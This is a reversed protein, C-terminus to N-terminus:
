CACSTIQRFLAEYAAVICMLLLRAVRIERDMRLSVPM